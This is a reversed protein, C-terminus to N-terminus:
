GSKSSRFQIYNLPGTLSGIGYFIHMSLFIIPLQIRHSIKKTRKVAFYSGCILHLLLGIVAFVWAPWFIIGGLLAVLETLVFAMPVFYRLPMRGPRSLFNIMSWKGNLYMQKILKHYSNRAYYYYHIEPDLYFKMGADRMRRHLDNDQTRVLKENLFGIEYFVSKKYLGAAVTDVYGATKSYRFKSGGVGFPSTLAEAIIEGSKTDGLTTISGGVCAADGVQEMVEIVKRLFDSRVFMHADLRVVYDGRAAQIGLNWGSALIHKPNSIIRLEPLTKATTQHLTYEEKVTQLTKDESEGDVVIIEYCDSPYDQELLSAICQRIRYAENRVVIMATILPFATKNPPELPM